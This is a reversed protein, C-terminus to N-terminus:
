LVFSLVWTAIATPITFQGLFFGTIACPLFPVDVPVGKFYSAWFEAVYETALGGVLLNLAMMAVIVIGVSGQNNKM